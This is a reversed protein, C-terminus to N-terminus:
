FNIEAFFDYAAAAVFPSSVLSVMGFLACFFRDTDDLQEWCQKM